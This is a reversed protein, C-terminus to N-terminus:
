VKEEKRGLNKFLLKNIVVHANMVEAQFKLVAQEPLFLLDSFLVCFYKTFTNEEAPM